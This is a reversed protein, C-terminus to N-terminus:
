PNIEPVAPTDAVATLYVPGKSYLFTRMGPWCENKFDCYSCATGLKRNGRAGMPEDAYHRPPPKDQRVAAMLAATRKVVESLTPLDHCPILKIHGLQKDAGLLFAPAKAEVDGREALMWHYIALQWRYGFTDNDATLGHESYRKFAPSSMSKVDVVCGDIVADTRGRVLSEGKSTKLEVSEQSHTVEHGAAVALALLLEEISDGYMFKFKTYPPLAEAVEPKNRKYWMKRACDQGIESAYLPDEPKPPERTQTLQRQFSGEISPLTLLQNPDPGNSLVGYIDPVLTDITKM